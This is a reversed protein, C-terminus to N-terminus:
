KTLFHSPAKGTWSKFAHTFSTADAYGLTEAIQTISHKGDQLLEEAHKRKLEAIMKGLTTGEKRLRRALQQESMGFIEAAKDNTLPGHGVHAKLAEQVSSAFTRPPKKEGAEDAPSRFYDESSFELNLWFAPFAIRHGFKDGKIPKTGKFTRPLAAPDSVTVLVDRSSWESGVCREVIEAFMCAFFADIQAPIFPTEFYRKGSLYASKGAVSLHHETSSSHETAIMVLSTLFSGLTNAGAAASVLPPWNSVAIQTGIKGLLLTDKTATAAEEFFQYMVIAHIYAEPDDFSARSIGLRTLIEDANDYVADLTKLIPRATSLRILPQAPGNMTAGIFICPEHEVWQNQCSNM